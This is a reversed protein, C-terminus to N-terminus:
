PRGGTAATIPFGDRAHAIAPALVRALPLRGYAAHAECWGDVAGPTTVTAPLIGALPIEDHGRSRFWEVTAGAAARGAAALCRVAGLRADYILWFADGGVSTMHPYVVSLVASAALAADVASGGANLMAVGAESALFHPSAVM